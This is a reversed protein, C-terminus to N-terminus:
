GIADGNRDNIEFDSCIPNFFDKTNFFVLYNDGSFLRIPYTGTTSQGGPRNPIRTQRCRLNALGETQAFGSDTSRGSSALFQDSIL